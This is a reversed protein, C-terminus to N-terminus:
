FCVSVHRMRLRRWTGRRTNISFHWTQVLNIGQLWVDASWGREAAVTIYNWSGNEFHSRKQTEFSTRPLSMPRPLSLFLQKGATIQTHCTFPFLRKPTILRCTSKLMGRFCTLRSKPPVHYVSIRPQGRHFSSWVVRVWRQWLPPYFSWECVVELEPSLWLAASCLSTM